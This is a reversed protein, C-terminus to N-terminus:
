RKRDITVDASAEGFKVGKSLGLLDGEVDLDGLGGQNLKAGLDFTKPLASVKPRILQSEYVRFELFRGEADKPVPLRVWAIPTKAGAGADYFRLYLERIGKAAPALVNALIVHGAVVMEGDHGATTNVDGTPGPKPPPNKGRGEPPNMGGPQAFGRSGGSCIVILAVLATLRPIRASM